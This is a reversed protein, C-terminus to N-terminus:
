RRPTSGTGASSVLSRTGGDRSRLVPAGTLLHRALAEHSYGRELMYDIQERSIIGPYHARWATEAMRRVVLLYSADASALTIDTASM